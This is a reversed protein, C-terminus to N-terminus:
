VTTWIVDPQDASMRQKIRPLRMPNPLSGIGGCLMTRHMTPVPMNHTPQYPNLAPLATPASPIAALAKVVVVRAVATAEKTQGIASHIKRPFGLTSPKQEPATAPSTTMEGAQPNTVGLPAMAIPTTAPSM